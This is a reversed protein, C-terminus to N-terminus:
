SYRKLSIEIECVNIGFYVSLTTNNNEFSQPNISCNIIIFKYIAYIGVYLM